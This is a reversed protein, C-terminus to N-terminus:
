RYRSVKVIITIIQIYHKPDGGMLHFQILQYISVTGEQIWKRRVINVINAFPYRLKQM